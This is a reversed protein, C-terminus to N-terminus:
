IPIQSKTIKHFPDDLSPWQAKTQKIAAKYTFLQVVISIFHKKPM